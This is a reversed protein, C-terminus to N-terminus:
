SWSLRAPEQGARLSDLAALDRARDIFNPPAPPLQGPVPMRHVPGVNFVVDGLISRAQLAPGYVTGSIENNWAPDPDTSGPARQPGAGVDSM